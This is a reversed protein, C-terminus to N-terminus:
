DPQSHPSAMSYEGRECVCVCVCVNVCVFVCVCLCACMHVCEGDYTCARVCVGEGKLGDRCSWWEVLM